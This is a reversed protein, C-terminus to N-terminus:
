FSGEEGILVKGAVESIPELGPSNTTANSHNNQPPYAPTTDEASTQLIINGDENIMYGHSELYLEFRREGAAPYSFIERLMDEQTTEMHTVLIDLMNDDLNTITRLINTISTSTLYKSFDLHIAAFYDLTSKGSLYHNYMDAWLEFATIEYNSCLEKIKVESFEIGDDASADKIEEIYANDDVEGIHFEGGDDKYIRTKYKLLFKAFQIELNTNEHDLGLEDHIFKMFKEYLIDTHINLKEALKYIVILTTNTMRIFKARETFPVLINETNPEYGWHYFYQTPSMKYRNAALILKEFHLGTEACFRIISDIDIGLLYIEQNFGLSHMYTVIEEPSALETVKSLIDTPNINRHKFFKILADPNFGSREAIFTIQASTEAELEAESQTKCRM